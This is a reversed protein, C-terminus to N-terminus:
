IGEIYLDSIFEEIFESSSNKVIYYLVFYKSFSMSECLEMMQQKTDLSVNGKSALLKGRLKGFCGLVIWYFVNLTTATLIFIFYCWLVMFFSQYYLNFNLVCMAGSDSVGGATGFSALPCSIITPFLNCPFASTMNLKEAEPLYKKAFNVGYTIFGNNMNYDLILTNLALMGCLVFLTCLYKMVFWKHKHNLKLFKEVTKMCDALMGNEFKCYMWLPLLFLSGCLFLIQPMKTYNSISDDGNTQDAICMTENIKRLLIEPFKTTGHHYCYNNGQDINTSKESFSCSIPKVGNILPGFTSLSAGFFTMIMAFNFLSLIASQLPNKVITCIKPFLEM